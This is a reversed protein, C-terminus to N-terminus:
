IKNQKKRIILEAGFNFMFPSFMFSNKSLDSYLVPLTIAPQMYFSLFGNSLRFTPAMDVFSRRYLFNNIELNSEYKHFHVNSFRFAISPEFRYKNDNFKRHVGIEGQLFWRNYSGDLYEYPRNILFRDARDIAIAKGTGFGGFFAFKGNTNIKSFYGMGIEGFTHKHFNTTDTIFTKGGISATGMIAFHNTVAYASQVELAANIINGSVSVKLENKESLQPAYVMNPKYMPPACSNIIGLSLIILIFNKSSMKIFINKM